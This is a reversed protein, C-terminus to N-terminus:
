LIAARAAGLRDPSVNRRQAIEDLTAAERATANTTKSIVARPHEPQVNEITHRQVGLQTALKKERALNTMQRVEWVSHAMPKECYLHKGMQMAMM